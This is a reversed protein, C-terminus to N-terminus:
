PMVAPSQPNLKGRALELDAFSTRWRYVAEWYRSQTRHTDEEARLLDTITALGSEYRNQIIRLSENAQTVATRAVEVQKRAAELEYYARRVELQVASTALARLAVMREEAARERALRSRKAGGQFLDVEVEVAGLWHSGGNGLFAPNDAQWAAILNVRPGFAAKAMAVSKQQAAEQLKVGQLDPRQELAQSELEELSPLPLEREALVEGPAFVSEAAVGLEHNLRVRAVGVASRAQILEQERTALFVQASLVDSEVVVGAELRARSRELNAEATRVAEEAVQQQKFALLLGFYSDVVRFVLEQETRELQRESAEHLREARALRFWSERSDFVSWTATFRTSFDNIPTPSNLRSLDFDAQTFRRQRLKTGFVYVPDNSRTFSERFDVQPLLDARAEGIGAGAARAEALAARRIPNKELAIEVAQELTLPTQAEAHVPFVLGLLAFVLAVSLAPSLVQRSRDLGHM